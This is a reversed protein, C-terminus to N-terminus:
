NVFYEEPNVYEGNKMMEFHLHKAESSECVASEGIGGIIEGTIVARGKVTDHPLDPSLNSYVSKIGDKHEIVVTTGYLYDNYVDAIVGNSAAKVPTGVEGVIDTGNHTRYDSMSVSYVPVDMSFEKSIYGSCPKIFGDFGYEFVTEDPEEPVPITKDTMLATNDTVTNTDQTKEAVGNAATDATFTDAGETEAKVDPIVIKADVGSPSDSVPTDLNFDDPTFDQQPLQLIQKNGENNQENNNEIYEGDPEAFYTVVSGVAVAVVTLALAVYVMGGFIRSKTGKKIETIKKM